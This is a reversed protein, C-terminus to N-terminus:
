RRPLRFRAPSCVTPLSKCQAQVQAIMVRVVERVVGSQPRRAARVRVARQVGAGKVRANARLVAIGEGVCRVTWAVGKVSAVRQAACERAHM